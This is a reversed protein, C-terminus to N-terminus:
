IVKNEGTM